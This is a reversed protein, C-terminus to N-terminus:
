NHSDKRREHSKKNKNNNIYIARPMNKKRQQIETRVKNNYKWEGILYLCFRFFMVIIFLLLVWYKLSM